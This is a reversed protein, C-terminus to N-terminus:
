NNIARLCKNNFNLTIELKIADWIDVFKNEEGQETDSYNPFKTIKYNFDFSVTNAKKFLDIVNDLLPLLIPKYTKDMRESNLMSGNTEVALILSVDVEVKKQNYHNEIYPMDLWILPYNTLTESQNFFSILEKQDGVKFIPMFAQLDNSTIPTLYSFIEELRDEIVISKKIGSM